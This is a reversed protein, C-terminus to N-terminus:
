YAIAGMTHKQKNYVYPFLFLKRKRKRKEAMRQVTYQFLTILQTFIFINITNDTRQLCSQMQLSLHTQTRYRAFGYIETSRFLFLYPHRSSENHTRSKHNRSNQRHRRRRIEAVGHSWVYVYFRHRM